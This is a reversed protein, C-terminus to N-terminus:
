NTTQPFEVKGGSFIMKSRKVTFTNTQSMTLDALELTVYSGVPGRVISMSQTFSMSVVNTGNVSILFGRPKIGAKEAPSGPYVNATRLPENNKYRDVIVLGIGGMEEAVMTLVLLLSGLTVITKTKM